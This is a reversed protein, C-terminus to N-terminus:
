GSRPRRVALLVSSRPSLQVETCLYGPHESWILRTPDQYWQQREEDTWASEPTFDDLVVLGGPQLLPAVLDPADPERKPGGDSFVLAYPAAKHSQTWDGCLVEVNELPAFLGAAAEARDPEIEVTVLRVSPSMGSALWATGVGFATGLEAINGTTVTAAMLQLLRGVEPLCAQSCGRDRTLRVAARVLPPYDGHEEYVELGPQRTM